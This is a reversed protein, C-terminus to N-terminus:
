ILTDICECPYPGYGVVDGLCYITTIGQSKIDALVADLAEINGHIDSIVAIKTMVTLFNANNIVKTPIPWSKPMM